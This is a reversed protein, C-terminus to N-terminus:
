TTPTLRLAGGRDVRARVRGASRRSPLARPCVHMLARHTDPGQVVPADPGGPSELFIYVRWGGPTPVIEVTYM